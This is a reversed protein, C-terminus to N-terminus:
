SVAQTVTCRIEEEGDTRTRLGLQGLTAMVLSAAALPPRKPVWPGRSSAKTGRRPFRTMSHTTQPTLRPGRLLIQTGGSGVLCEVVAPAECVCTSRLRM